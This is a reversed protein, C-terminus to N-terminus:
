ATASLERCGRRVIAKAIRYWVYLATAVLAGLLALTTLAAPLPGLSAALIRELSV